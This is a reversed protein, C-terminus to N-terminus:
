QCKALIGWVVLKVADAMAAESAQRMVEAEAEAEEASRALLQDARTRMQELQDETERVSEAEAAECLTQRAREAEDLVQKVKLPIHELIRQAEDEAARIKEIAEKAM